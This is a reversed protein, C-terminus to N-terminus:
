NKEFQIDQESMLYCNIAEDTCVGTGFCITASPYHICSLYKFHLNHITFRLLKIKFYQLLPVPVSTIYVLDLSIFTIVRLDTKNTEEHQLINCNKKKKTFCLLLIPLIQNLCLVTMNSFLNGFCSPSKYGRFM